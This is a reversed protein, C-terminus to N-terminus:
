TNMHTYDNLKGRCTPPAWDTVGDRNFPFVPEIARPPTTPTSGLTSPKRRPQSRHLVQQQIIGEKARFVLAQFQLNHLHINRNKFALIPLKMSLHLM